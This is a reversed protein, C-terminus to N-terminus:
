KRFPLKFSFRRDSNKFKVETLTKLEPIVFSKTEKQDALELMGKM